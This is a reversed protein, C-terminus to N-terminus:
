RFNDLIRPTGAFAPLRAFPDGSKSTGGSRAFVSRWSQRNLNEIKLAGSSPNSALHRHQEGADTLAQERLATYFAPKVQRPSIKAVAMPVIGDKKRDEPM